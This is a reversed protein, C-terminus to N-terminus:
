ALPSPLPTEHRLVALLQKCINEGTATLRLSGGHWELWDLTVYDAIFGADIECARRRGLLDVTSLLSERLAERRPELMRPSLSNM